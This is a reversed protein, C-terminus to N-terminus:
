PHIVPKIADLRHLAALADSAGELGTPPSFLADWPAPTRRLLDLARHYDAIDGNLSGRLTLQKGMVLGLPLPEPAPSTTGVVVFTGGWAAMRVAEAGVGPAGALDLVLDAGRGGTAELVAAVRAEAGQGPVGEGAASGLRDTSPAAAGDVTAASGAPAKSGLPTTSDLHGDLTVTHHAGFRRALDLRADPAGITVVTAGSAAALATAVLGLAGAGQVAVTSGPRVGGARDFAHVVTKVACGAAAAWTDPLDDPLLLKAAGPVVYVYEALGGTAYPWVDARQLFGYGRNACAVPDRLVSCGHCHGCVSESWGIRDGERVPRGLADHTGEGAEVVTGVMEHGLVLPLAVPMVGQWLHADTACLTACTVRVLAAGPECREPVPVEELVLPKGYERLVAARM